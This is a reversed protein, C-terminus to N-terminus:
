MAEFYTRLEPQAESLVDIRATKLLKFIAVSSDTGAGLNGSSRALSESPQDIFRPHSLRGCTWIFCWSVSFFCVFLLYSVFNYKFICFLFLVFFLILFSSIRFYFCSICRSPAQMDARESRLRGPKVM